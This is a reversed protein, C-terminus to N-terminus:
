AGTKKNWVTVGYILTGSLCLTIFAVSAPWGDLIFDFHTNISVDSIHPTMNIAENEM